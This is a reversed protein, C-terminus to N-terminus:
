VALKLFVYAFTIGRADQGVLSFPLQAHIYLWLVYPIHEGGTSYLRALLRVHLCLEGRGVLQVGEHLLLLLCAVELSLHGVLM